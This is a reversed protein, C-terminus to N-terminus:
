IQHSHLRQPQEVEHPLSLTQRGHRNEPEDIADVDGGAVLVHPENREGISLGVGQAHGETFDLADGSQADPVVVLGGLVGVSPYPM